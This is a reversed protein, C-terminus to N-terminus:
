RPEWGDALARADAVQAATMRAAVADRHTISEAQFGTDRADAALSLWKLAQVNDQPVGRGAEYLLGLSYQATAEGHDAARRYWAAAQQLDPAVGQGEEYMLGLNLQAAPHDQDAAKRYWARAQA